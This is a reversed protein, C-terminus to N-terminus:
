CKAGLLTEIKSQNCTWRKSSNMVQQCLCKTVVCVIVRSAYMAFNSAFALLNIPYMAHLNPRIPTIHFVGWDNLTFKSIAIDM